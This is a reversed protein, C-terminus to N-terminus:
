VKGGDELIIAAYEAEHYASLAHQRILEMIEERIARPMAIVRLYIGLDHFTSIRQKRAEEYADVVRQDSM